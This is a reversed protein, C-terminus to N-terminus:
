VAVLSKFEHIAAVLADVEDWKTREGFSVRVVEGAEKRTLGYGQELIRYSGASQCASAGIGIYIDKQALFQQLADANVGVLRIATTCLLADCGRRRGMVGSYEIAYDDLNMQLRGYLGAAHSDNSRVNGVAYETADCIALAGAVDPTGHLTMGNLWDNLRSSLWMCGINGETGIKHGSWVVMDAWEDIGEPIAEHGIYATMDCVYFANHQHCLEGVAKMEFIEGTINQSAQWFVFYPLERSPVQELLQELERMDHFVASTWRNFSDHEYVSALVPCCGRETHMRGMVCEILQSSTGGFLVKGGLAGIAKKIRIECDYLDKQETFAYNANVNRCMKKYDCRRFRPEPDTAAYDLYVM